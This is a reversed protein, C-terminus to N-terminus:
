QTSKLASGIQDYRFSGTNGINTEEQNSLLVNDRRNTLSAAKLNTTFVTPRNTRIVNPPM